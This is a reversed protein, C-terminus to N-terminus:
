GASNRHKLSLNVTMLLECECIDNLGCDKLFTANFIKDAEQQNLIPYNDLPPLNPGVTKEPEKHVLTYSMRM